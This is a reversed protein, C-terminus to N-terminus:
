PDGSRVQMHKAAGEGRDLQICAHAQAFGLDGAAARRM